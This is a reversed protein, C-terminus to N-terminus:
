FLYDLGDGVTEPELELEPEPEPEVGAKEAKGAERAMEDVTALKEGDPYHRRPDRVNPGLGM